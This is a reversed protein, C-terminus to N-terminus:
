QGDRHANKAARAASLQTKLETHRTRLAKLAENASRIKARTEMLEARLEKTTM